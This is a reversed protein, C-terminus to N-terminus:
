RTFLLKSSEGRSRQQIKPPQTLLALEIAHAAHGDTEHAETRGAMPSHHHYAGTTDFTVNFIRLNGVIQEMAAIVHHDQIVAPLATGTTQQSIRVTTMHYVKGIVDVIEGLKILLFHHRVTVPLV